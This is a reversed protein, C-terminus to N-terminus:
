IWTRLLVSGGWAAGIMSDFVCHLPPLTEEELGLAFAPGDDILHILEALWVPLNSGLVMGCARPVGGLALLVDIDLELAFASGGVLLDGEINTADLLLVPTSSRVLLSTIATRPFGEGLM